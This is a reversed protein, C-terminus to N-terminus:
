PAKPPWRFNPRRALYDPAEEARVNSLAARLSALVLQQLRAPVLVTHTILGRRATVELATPSNPILYWGPSETMVHVRALWRAVDATTTTVPLRLRLAVLSRWWTRGNMWRALLILWLVSLGGLVTMLAAMM